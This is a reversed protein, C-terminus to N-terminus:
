FVSFPDMYRLVLLVIIVYLNLPIRFISMLSARHEEVLIKSKVISMLPNVFGGIGNISALLLLRIFFSEIFYVLSFLILQILLALSVSIYSDAKLYIMFIEFLKTGLIMTFICCTFIFGVNINLTDTSNQLIPTWAFLYINIVAQFISEIIGMSLVERKKLERFAEGFASGVGKHINEAPKNEVWLLHIAMMSFVSFSISIWM